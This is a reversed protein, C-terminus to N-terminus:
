KEKFNQALEQARRFAATLAGSLTRGLNSKRFYNLGALTTGKKSTVAERLEEFSKQSTVGALKSAGFFTGTVLVRAQKSTLGNKILWNEFQHMFEFIFGVGSASAATVLDLQDESKLYMIQGLPKLLQELNLELSRREQIKVSKSLSIYIGFVGAHVKAPTNAMIRVVAKAQPFFEKLSETRVGAALSIVVQDPHSLDFSKAAAPLDQPKTALVIYDSSDALTQNSPAIKIKFKKAFDQIKTINRNTIWIQSPSLAKQSLAGSILAQALNGCGVFGWVKSNQKANM